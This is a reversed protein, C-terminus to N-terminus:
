EIMRTSQVAPAVLSWRFLNPFLSLLEPTGDIEMDYVNIAESYSIKGLWLKYFTAIDSQVVINIDLDPPKLCVSADNKTLLLWFKDQRMDQPVGHFDFEIVMRSSPLNETRIRGTMWWLLLTPNLEDVQPEDFAWVAGWDILSTIVAQLSKGADTLNYETTNSGSSNYQKEIIGTDHLMQLRRSLLARSIGPLGRELSNFHKTGALLDRIILLTWRDGLLDLAHSIPCYQGYNKM